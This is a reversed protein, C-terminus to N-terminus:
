SEEPPVPHTVHRAAAAIARDLAAAADCGEARAALHAAVLADGAGTVSRATVPPPSRTVLTGDMAATAPAPGDTVLASVAPLAAVAAAATRSDAFSAGCLAEAETRNLYVSVVRRGALPRLLGGLRASKEPSAPVIAVPGALAPDALLAAIVAEPLNGDLVATGRWPRGPAALTGDRLPALLALGARELGRCDAVAAHLAGAADEIAVYADTAGAARHVGRVDVGRGELDALLADGAPDTGAAAILAVPRGLRALAAAVNGAVGGPTRTGRGPVDAGPPLPRSTRGIVDWHAAGICLIALAPADARIPSGIM